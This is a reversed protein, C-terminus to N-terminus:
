ERQPKVAPNMTDGYVTRMSKPFLLALVLFHCTVYRLKGVSHPESFGRWCPRHSQKMKNHQISTRKITDILYSFHLPNSFLLM